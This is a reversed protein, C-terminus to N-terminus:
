SSSDTSASSSPLAPKQSLVIDSNPGLLLHYEIHDCKAIVLRRRGDLPFSALVGIRGPQNKARIWGRGSFYKLVWALLAMLGIVTTSAFIFRLWSVTEADPQSM